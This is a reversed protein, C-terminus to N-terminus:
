LFFPNCPLFIGKKVDTVCGKKPFYMGMRMKRACNSLLIEIKYSKCLSFTIRFTLSDMLIRTPSPSLLFIVAFNYNEIRN